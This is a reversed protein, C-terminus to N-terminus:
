GKKRMNYKIEDSSSGFSAQISLEAGGPGLRPMPFQVEFQGDKNTKGRVVVPEHAAGRVSIVIEADAQAAGGQRSKVGIKLNAMTGVLFSAPNLLQVQVGTPVPEALAKAEELTGARIEDIIRRHQQELMERLRDDDFGATGILEKYPTGRKALVRGQMYVTTDIVPNAEGRDETQVHYVIKGVKIDTNFGFIM